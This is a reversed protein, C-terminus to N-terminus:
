PYPRSWIRPRSWLCNWIAQEMIALIPDEPGRGLANDFEDSELFQSFATESVIKLCATEERDMSVVAYLGVFIGTLAWLPCSVVELV